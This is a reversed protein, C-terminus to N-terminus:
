DSSHLQIDSLWKEVYVWYVVYQYIYFSKKIYFVTNRNSNEVPMNATTEKYQCMPMNAYQCM